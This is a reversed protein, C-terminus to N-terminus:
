NSTRSTNDDFLANQQALRADVSQALAASCGVCTLLAVILNLVARMATVGKKNHPTNAEFSLTQQRARLPSVLVSAASPRLGLARLRHARDESGQSM